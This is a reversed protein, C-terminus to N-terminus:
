AIRIGAYGVVETYDGTEEGSTRYDILEAKLAGLDKAAVIAATTPQFGCMSIREKQVTQFLGEGDLDLIKRIALGDQAEATKRSVYHSMDTSAVILVDRGYAKIARAIGRGLIELDPYQAEHSICIPVIKVDDVFYQLFPLQVELSHEHQHASENEECSPCESAVRGALDEDIASEGLPTLWDGKRQLAFLIGSHQHSPGLILCTEPIRVSSFLVGATPGSYQYGAHPSVVAFASIKPLSRDTMKDLTKLLDEKGGPYFYGSVYPQRRM